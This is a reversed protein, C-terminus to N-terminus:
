VSDQLCVAGKAWTASAFARVGRSHVRMFTGVTNDANTVVLSRWVLVGAGGIKGVTRVFHFFAGLVRATQDVGTLKLELLVDVAAPRALLAGSGPNSSPCLDGQGSIDTHIIRWLMGTPKTQEGTARVLSFRPASCGAVLSHAPVAM